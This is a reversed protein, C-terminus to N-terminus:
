GMGENRVAEMIASAISFGCGRMTGDETSIAAWEGPAAGAVVHYHPDISRRDSYWLAYTDGEETDHHIELRSGPPLGSLHDDSQTCIDDM